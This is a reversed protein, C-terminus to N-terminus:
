NHSNCKKEICVEKCDHQTKCCDGNSGNGRRKGFVARKLSCSAIAPVLSVDNSPSSIAEKFSGNCEGDICSDICD